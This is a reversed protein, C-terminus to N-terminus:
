PKWVVRLRFNGSVQYDQYAKTAEIPKLPKASTEDEDYVRLAPLQRRGEALIRVRCSGQATGALRYVAYCSDEDLLEYDAQFIPYESHVLFPVQEFRKYAYSTMIFALAAGYVEQGVAGAQQWGIPIDELPIPHL